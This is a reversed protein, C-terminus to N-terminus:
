AAAACRSRWASTSPRGPSSTTRSGLVREAAAGPPRRARHGQLLLAAPVLRDSMDLSATASACGPWARDGPRRHQEPLLATDGAQVPGDAPRDGAADSGAASQRPGAAAPALQSPRRRRQMATRGAGCMPKGSRAARAPVRSPLWTSASNPPSGARGAPDGAAAPRARPGSWTAAPSRVAGAVATCLLWIWGSSSPRTGSWRAARCCPRLRGPSPRGPKAPARKAPARKAPPRAAAQGAPKAPPKAAKPKATAARGGGRRDRHDDGPGHGGPRDPWGPRGAARRDRRPVVRGRHRVQRHGRGRHGRGQPGRRRAQGAVRRLTGEDMDAGLAPM